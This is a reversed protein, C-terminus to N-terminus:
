GEVQQRLRELREDWQQSIRALCIRAEGLTRRDIQWLTARGVRQCRLLGATELVKLHKTVAQRTLGSDGTLTVISSPGVRILREILALRNADGLASFIAAEAPLIPRSM